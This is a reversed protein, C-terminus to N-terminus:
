LSKPVFERGAKRTLINAGQIVRRREEVQAHAETLRYTVINKAYGPNTRAHLTTKAKEISSYSHTFLPDERDIVTEDYQTFLTDLEGENLPLFSRGLRKELDKTATRIGSSIQIEAELQLIEKTIRRANREREYREGVRQSLRKCESHYADRRREDLNSLLLPYLIPDQTIERLMEESPAYGEKELRRALRARQMRQADQDLIKQLSPDSLHISFVSPAAYTFTSLSPDSLIINPLEQLLVIKRTEDLEDLTDARLAPFYVREDKKHPINIGVQLVLEGELCVDLIPESSKEKRLQEKGTLFDFTYRGAM